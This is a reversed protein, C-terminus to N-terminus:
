QKRERLNFEVDIIQWFLVPQGAKTAPRFRMQRAADLAAQDLGDPLHTLFRVEKVSGDLEVLIRLRIVGQVGHNRAEDTYSPRPRNLPVPRTVDQLGTGTGVTRLDPLLLSELFRKAYGVSTDEKPHLVAVTIFDNGAIFCKAEIKDSGSEMTSARGHYGNQTIDEEHTTVLDKKGGQKASKLIEELGRPFLVNLPGRQLIAFPVNALWVVQYETQGSKLRYNHVKIGDKEDKAKEAPPAPLSVSFPAGQPSFKLWGGSDKQDSTQQKPDQHAEAIVLMAALGVILCSAAARVLIGGIGSKM